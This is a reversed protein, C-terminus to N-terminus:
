FDVTKGAGSRQDQGEQEATAPIGEGEVVDSATGPMDPANGVGPTMEPQCQHSGRSAVSISEVGAAVSLAYSSETSGAPAASSPVEMAFLKDTSLRRNTSSFPSRSKLPVM